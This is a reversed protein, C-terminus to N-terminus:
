VEGVFMRLEAILPLKYLVKMLTLHIHCLYIVFQYFFLFIFFLNGLQLHTAVSLTDIFSVCYSFYVNLNLVYLKNFPKVHLVAQYKVLNTLIKGLGCPSSFHSFRTFYWGYQMDFWEILFKNYSVCSYKQYNLM